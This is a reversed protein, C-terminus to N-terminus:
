KEILAHVAFSGGVPITEWKGFEHYTFHGTLVNSKIYISRHGMPDLFEFEIMNDGTIMLPEPLKYSFRGNEDLLSKDYTFIVSRENINTWQGNQKKYINLRFNMREVCDPRQIWGCSVETIWGRKGVKCRVGVGCGEAHGTGIQLEFKGKMSTRGFIKKKTKPPMVTVENLAIPQERLSISINGTNASSLAGIMIAHTEYGISSFVITDSPRAMESKFNFYGASDTLTGVHKSPVSITAYPIPKGNNDTIMGKIHIGHSVCVAMLYLLIASIIRM